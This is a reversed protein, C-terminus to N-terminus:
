FNLLFLPFLVVSFFAAILHIFLLGWYDERNWEDLFYGFVFVGLLPAALVAGLQWGMMEYFVRVQEMSQPNLTRNIAGGYGQGSVSSVMSFLAGFFLTRKKVEIDGESM